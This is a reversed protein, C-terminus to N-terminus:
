EPPTWGRAFAGAAYAFALLAAAAFPAFGSASGLWLLLLAGAAAAACWGRAQRRRRFEPLEGPLLWFREAVPARLSVM